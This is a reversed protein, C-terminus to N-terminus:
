LLETPLKEDFWSARGEGSADPAPTAPTAVNDVPEVTQPHKPILFYVFECGLADAARRLSYLSIAGRTESTEFQAWAQRKIGLKAALIKQPIGQVERRARLWGMAPTRAADRAAQLVALKQGWGIEPARPSIKKM